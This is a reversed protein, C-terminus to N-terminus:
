TACLFGISDDNRFPENRFGTKFVNSLQAVDLVVLGNDFNERPLEFQCFEVFGPLTCGNLDDIGGNNWILAGEGLSSKKDANSGNETEKESGHAREKKGCVLVRNRIRFGCGLKM